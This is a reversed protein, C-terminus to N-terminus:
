FKLNIEKWLAEAKDNKATDCETTVQSVVPEDPDELEPLNDVNTELCCLLDDDEYTSFLFEPKDWLKKDGIGYHKAIILHEELPALTEFNEDCTVCKFSCMQRRIYNVVKVKDYFKLDNLAADFDISHMEKMHNNVFNFEPWVSSCFLCTIQPKEGDWDWEPESDDSEFLTTSNVMAQVCDRGRNSNSSSSSNPKFDKYNILFYKDYSKKDPNIRKHGKKRMHEKLTPRDPFLKECFLCIFNDLKHQVDEILDDIFVLSELKGLQLFHKEYLHNLLAMRNPTLVDRCYLCNREYTQDTREYQHQELVMRLRQDHLWERQKYDEPLDDSLLYYKEDKSLKGDPLQNLM